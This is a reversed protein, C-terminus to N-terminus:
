DDKVVIIKLRDGAKYRSTDVNEMCWCASFAHSGCCTLYMADKMLEEKMQMRGALMAHDEALEITEKDQQKQWKAGKKFGEMFKDNPEYCRHAAVELGDSVPEESRYLEALNGNEDMIGANKLFKVASEKDKTVAKAMEELDKSMPEEQLSDIFDLIELYSSHKGRNFDEEQLTMHRKSNRVNNNWGKMREVEERIKEKDTM